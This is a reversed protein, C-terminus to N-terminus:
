RRLSQVLAELRGSRVRKRESSDELCEELERGLAEFAAAAPSPEALASLPLRRAATNEIHASYPIEAALFGLGETRAFARVDRHMAKRGDVMSFFPLVRLGGQRHSRLHRHLNALTRLSLATPITPVVLADATAFVCENLLSVSPACDLVIREYHQGLEALARSFARAPEVEKRLASELKTLSLDAPLVDLGEFDSGRIAALLEGPEALLRKPRVSEDLTVRFIWSASGQADL